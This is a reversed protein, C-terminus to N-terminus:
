RRAAKLSEFYRDLDSEFFRTAGGVKFPRPLIGRAVLRYVARVSLNLRNATDKLSILTDKTTPTTEMPTGHM